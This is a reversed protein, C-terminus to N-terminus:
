GEASRESDIRRTQGTAVITRDADISAYTWFIKLEECDSANRFRHAVGAPIFSLDDRTMEHIAGEIEAVGNGALVLVSEDCNHFHLPLEAGAAFTTIGNVFGTSGLTQTVLRVTRVGGGRDLADIDSPRLVFPEPENM